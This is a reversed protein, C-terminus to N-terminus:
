PPWRGTPQSRTSQAITGHWQEVANRSIAKPESRGFAPLIHAIMQNYSKVTNPRRTLRVVERWQEMLDAVRGGRQPAVSDGVDVKLRLRSAHIRAKGITWAPHQGLTIRRQRGNERWDFIFSKIGSPYVRIALGTV